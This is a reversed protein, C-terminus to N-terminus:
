VTASFNFCFCQPFSDAVLDLTDRGSYSQMIRLKYYDKHKLEESQSGRMFVKLLLHTPRRHRFHGYLPYEMETVDDLDLLLFFFQSDSRKFSHSAKLEFNNTTSKKKKQVEAMNLKLTWRQLPKYTIPLM